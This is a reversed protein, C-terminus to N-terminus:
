LLGEAGLGGIIAEILIIIVFCRCNTTEKAPAGLSNDGPHKLLSGGVRFPAGIRVRQRDAAVHTARVVNDRQTSWVQWLLAVAIGAAIAEDRNQPAVIVEAETQIAFNSSNTTETIAIVQSRGESSQAFAIDMQKSFERAKTVDSALSQDILFQFQATQVSQPLQKIFAVQQSIIQEQEPSVNGALLIALAALAKNTNREVVAQQTGMIVVAQEESHNNIYLTKERNFDSNIDKRIPINFQERIGFGFKNITKGYHGRLITTMNSEYNDTNIIIRDSIYLATADKGITRLLTKIIPQVQKELKIQRRVLQDRLQPIQNANTVIM